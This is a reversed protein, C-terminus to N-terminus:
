LAELMAVPLNAFVQELALAGKGDREVLGITEDTFINNFRVASIEPPIVVWSDGWIERGFPMEDMQILHTLFRPVIVLVTKAEEKRAFACVHDKRDGDSVM